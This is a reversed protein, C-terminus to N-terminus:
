GSPEVEQKTNTGTARRHVSEASLHNLAYTKQRLKKANSSSSQAPIKCYAQCADIAFIFHLEWSTVDM